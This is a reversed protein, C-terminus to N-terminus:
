ALKAHSKEHLFEQVTKQYLISNKYIGMAHEAGDIACTRVSANCNAIRQMNQFPVFDDKSGHLLLIPISAMSVSQTVDVDAIRYKGWHKVCISLFGMWLTIPLHYRNHAVNQLQEKLNCYASDAVIAVVQKPLVKPHACLLVTTAGMSIGHLCIQIDMGFRRTLYQIWEGVDQCELYGFGICTGESRGHARNDPLLVSYGLQRYFDVMLSFDRLGYSHYGHVGIVFQKSENSCPFYYAWLNLGDQTQICVNEHAQSLLVDEKEQCLKRWRVYDSDPPAKKHAVSRSRDVRKWIKVILVFGMIVYLLLTIGIGLLAIVIWM